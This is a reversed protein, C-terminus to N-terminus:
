VNKLKKYENQLEEIRKRGDERSKRTDEEIQQTEKIGNMITQWTEEMVEVSVVPRGANRAIDISNQSINRANKRMLEQTTDQLADMSDSVLKQRKADIADILCKKFIPITTIFASNIKGVLKNNGKQMMRIQPASQFAVQQAMELDFSRQELLEIVNKASELELAALQDGNIAKEEISPLLRTLEEAKLQAAVSYKSLEQFYNYNEIYYTELQATSSKMESEYKKLEILIRDMDKGVTEYKEFLKEFLKKGRGFIKTFLGTHEVFDQPDFKEMIKNLNKILDSSEELKSTKMNNLIRDSFTSISDATEKGFEMVAIQDKSDIKQVLQLVQPDKRLAQKTESLGTLVEEQLQLDNM